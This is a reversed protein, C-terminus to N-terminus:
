QYTQPGRIQEHPPTLLEPDCSSKDLNRKLINAVMGYNVLPADKIRSCAAELRQHGYKNALRLIGLCSNYTQEYFYRSQLIRQVVKLTGNGVRSAQHEFHAANWGKQRVHHRHKEPMHESLTTYGNKQYSRKHVAVRSFGEYIEVTDVTYIIRLRKGILAYPVSYQHRDEGLIVHYNRQVKGETVHKILYPTTPLEKLVPKEQTEFLVKRSGAKAQFPKSNVAELQQHIAANLEELCYFVRDRLPGYIQNYAVSVGKEVSPKDRPKRVRAALITTGYHAALM